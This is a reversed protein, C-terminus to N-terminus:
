DNGAEEQEAEAEGGFGSHKMSVDQLMKAVIPKLEGAQKVTMVPKGDEDCITAAILRSRDQSDYISRFETDPMARVYFQAKTGNPLEITDRRVEKPAFMGASTFQQLISLPPTADVVPVEKTKSM